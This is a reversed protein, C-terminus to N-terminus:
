CFPQGYEVFLSHYGLSRFLQCLFLKYIHAYLVPGLFYCMDNIAEALFYIVSSSVPTQCRGCNRQVWLGPVFLKWRVLCLHSVLGKIVEFNVGLHQFCLVCMLWMGLWSRLASIKRRWSQSKLFFHLGSCNLLPMAYHRWWMEKCWRSAPVHEVIEARAVQQSISSDFCQMWGTGCKIGCAAYWTTQLHYFHLYETNFILKANCHVVTGLVWFVLFAM